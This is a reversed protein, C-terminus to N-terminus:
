FFMMEIAKMTQNLIERAGSVRASPSAEEDRCIATFEGM